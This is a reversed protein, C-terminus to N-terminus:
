PVGGCAVLEARCLAVLADRTFGGGFLLLRSVDERQLLALAQGLEERATAQEGARRALLGRHLRPMAFGPDLYAAVQDHAIAGSQDGASERCLAIVYHAGASMEDLAILQDCIREAAALDGGHTFLVASLLLADPDCASEAPLAGLMARAESFRERQLLEVAAGLDYSRLPEHERSTVAGGGDHVRPETTMAGIRESARRINEVWSAELDVAAPMRAVMAAAADHGFIAARADSPDSPDRRQYYFTDHTHCLHFEHSVGRLTEASGLFMFGRPALCRAIRAVAARAAEPEFYMLVNRCFVVDFSEARWFLPDDAALNREEFSVMACIKPDLVFDRGDPRFWRAKIEASTERLAWPSYKARAAKELMKANLDVARISLDALRAEPLRDRALMALSYAEEGSACGASLVRLARPEVARARPDLLLDAFARLQDASRFFYTEAVTLEDILTRWEGPLEGASDLHGLYAGVGRGARDAHRHLVEALFGLKDDDFRLGLRRAVITRLRDVDDAVLDSSV